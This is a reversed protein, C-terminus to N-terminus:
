KFIMKKKKMNLWHKCLLSKQIIEVFLEINVLRIKLRRGDAATQRSSQLM